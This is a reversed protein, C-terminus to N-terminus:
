AAANEQHHYIARQNHTRLDRDHQLKNITLVVYRVTCRTSDLSDHIITCSVSSLVRHLTLLYTSIPRPHSLAGRGRPTGSAM